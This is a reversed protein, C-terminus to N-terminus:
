YRPVSPDVRLSWAEIGGAVSRVNEFGAAQLIAAGSRSRVGHHCLVAIPDAHGWGLETLEALRASLEHLPVLVAGDIAAVAHEGETRVDLIRPPAPSRLADALDDVQVEFIPM